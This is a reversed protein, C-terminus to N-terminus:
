WLTCTGEPTCVEERTHELLWGEGKYVGRTPDAHTWYITYPVEVSGKYAAYHCDTRYYGALGYCDVTYTIEDQVIESGTYEEISLTIPDQVGIGQLTATAGEM